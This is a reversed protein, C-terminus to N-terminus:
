AAFDGANAEDAARARQSLARWVRWGDSRRIPILNALALLVNVISIWRSAEGPLNAFIAFILLNVVPGAMASTAEVFSHDSTERVTYGGGLGVGIVKVQLGSAAAVSAHGCEHLFLSLMIMSATAMGSAVGLRATYCLAFLAYLLLASPKLEIRVSM